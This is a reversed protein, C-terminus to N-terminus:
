PKFVNLEVFCENGVIQKKHMKTGQHRQPLFAIKRLTDKTIYILLKEKNM